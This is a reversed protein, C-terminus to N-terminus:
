SLQFYGDSPGSQSRGSSLVTKSLVGTWRPTSPPLGLSINKGHLSVRLMLSLQQPAAPNRTIIYFCIISRRHHKASTPLHQHHQIQICFCTFHTPEFWALYPFALLVRYRHLSGLGWICVGIGLCITMLALQYYIRFCVFDLLLIHLKRFFFMKKRLIFLGIQAAKILIPLQRMLCILQPEGPNELSDEAEVRKSCLM